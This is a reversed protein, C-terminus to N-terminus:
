RGSKAVASPPNNARNKLKGEYFANLIPHNVDSVAKSMTEDMCARYRQQAALQLNDSPGGCARDAAREIRGYLVAAGVTSILRLDDFRVTESKVNIVAADNAMAPSVAAVALVSLMLMRFNLRM